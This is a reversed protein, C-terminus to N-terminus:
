RSRADRVRRRQGQRGPAHRPPREGDGASTPQTARASASGSPESSAPRRRHEGGAAPAHAPHGPRARRGRLRDRRAPRARTSTATRPRRRCAPRLVPDRRRQDARADDRHARGLRLPRDRRLAAHRRRHRQTSRRASCSAPQHLGRARRRPPHRRGRRPPGGRRRLHDVEQRLEPTTLREVFQQYIAGLMSEFAYPSRAAPRPGPRRVAPHGRGRQRRHARVAAPHRARRVLSNACEYPEGGVSTTLEAMGGAHRTHDEVFRDILADAQEDLVGYTRSRPTCTSSRTSSRRRRGCSCPTTSPRGDAPRDARPRLRGPGPAGEESTRRLRGRARGAVRHPRRGAAPRAPVDARAAPRPRVPRSRPTRDHSLRRERQRTLASANNDFLARRLRRRQGSLDALVTCMRAEMILVAAITKAGDIGELQGVLETHTAVLTNELEYGATAVATLDSTPVARGVARVARRRGDAPAATGILASLADAAAQHNAQAAM